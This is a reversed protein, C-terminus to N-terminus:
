EVVHVPLLAVNCCLVYKKNRWCMCACSICHVLGLSVLTGEVWGDCWISKIGSCACAIVLASCDNLGNGRGFLM